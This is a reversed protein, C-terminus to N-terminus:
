DVAETPTEIRPVEVPVTDGPPILAVPRTTVVRLGINAAKVFLGYLVLYKPPITALLDPEALLPVLAVLFLGANFRFTRSKLISIAYYTVTEPPPRPDTLPATM